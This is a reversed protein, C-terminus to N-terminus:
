DHIIINPRYRAINMHTDTRDSSTTTEFRSFM